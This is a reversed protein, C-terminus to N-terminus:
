PRHRPLPIVQILATSNGISTRGPRLLFCCVSKAAESCKEAIQVAVPVTYSTPLPFELGM